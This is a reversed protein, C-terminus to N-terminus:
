QERQVYATAITVAHIIAGAGDTGTSASSGARNAGTHIQTNRDVRGAVGVADVGIVLRVM